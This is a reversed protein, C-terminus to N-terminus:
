VPGAAAITTWQKEWFCFFIGYFVVWFVVCPVNCHDGIQPIHKCPPSSVHSLLLLLLIDICPHISLNLNNTKKGAKDCIMHDLHFNLADHNTTESFLKEFSRFSAVRSLRSVRRILLGLLFWLGFGVYIFYFYYYYILYILYFGVPNLNSFMKSGKAVNETM